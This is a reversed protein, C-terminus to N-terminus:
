SCCDEESCEDDGCCGGDGHVHGHELEEETAERIAEIEVDFNLSQGALPHNGDVTINDGDIETIRVFQVDNGDDTDTEFEMGVELNDIGDFLDRSVVEIMAPDIEGYADAAELSVQLKDGVSKGELALELGPVINEEGHLYVLADGGESSDLVDGADNTLTYQFSVVKHNTIQM